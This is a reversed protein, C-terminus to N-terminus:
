VTVNLYKYIQVRLIPFIILKLSVIVYFLMSLMWYYCMVRDLKRSSTMKLSGFSVVLHVSFFITLMKNSM